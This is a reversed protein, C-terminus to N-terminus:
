LRPDLDQEQRLCGIMKVIWEERNPDDAALLQRGLAAEKAALQVKGRIDKHEILRRYKREDELYDYGYVIRLYEPSRVKMYPPIDASVSKSSPKIVLGEMGKEVTLVRFFENAQAFDENPGTLDVMLYDMGPTVLTYIEEVDDPLPGKSGWLVDFAKTHPDDDQTFRALASKFKELAPARFDLGLKPLLGTMLALGKDKQLATLHREVLTEYGGFENDVWDGGLARWPMIECDIIVDGYKATIGYRAYKAYQVRLWERYELELLGPLGRVLWGNRSTLFTDDPRGEFLYLNGRSGMHKPQLIVKSVGRNKYWLLGANLSELENGKSPAPPMTGSIYRVGAKKLAELQRTEHASLDYNERSYPGHVVVPKGLDKGPQATKENTVNVGSKVSLVYKVQGEEVVAASLHGGYVSGTDLLLKNKFQMNRPSPTDSVLHTIHGSIHLPHISDAQAYFWDLEQRVDTVGERTGLRFNRQARVAFDHVKGLVKTDCPAHTIYVPLNGPSSRCLLFPLSGGWLFLLKAAYDKDELLVDLSSFNKKEMELNIDEIQGLLRGSVYSEHNARIIIDGAERREIMYDIMERTNGGKDLYDGVHVIQFPKPVRAEAMAILARLEGVCEHSDGIVVLRTCDVSDVGEFYWDLAQHYSATDQSRDPLAKTVWDVHSNETWWPRNESSVDWGFSDKSKLRLVQDYDDVRISPLVQTRYNQLSKLIVRVGDESVGPPIYAERGKYDFTVICVRYGADRSMNRVMDRFAPDFATSDVVIVPCSIPFSLSTELQLKVHQFAQKSVARYAPSHPDHDRGTAAGPFTESGLLLARRADDSSIVGCTLGLQSAASSIDQAFTSKGCKTPGCLLFVTHPLIFLQPVKSFPAEIGTEEIEPIETTM